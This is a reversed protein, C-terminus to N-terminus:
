FRLTRSVDSRNVRREYYRQGSKRAKRRGPYKALLKRDQAESRNVGTQRGKKRLEKRRRARAEDREAVYDRQRRGKGHMHMINGLNEGYRLTRDIHAKVDFKETDIGARSLAKGINYRQMGYSMKRAM